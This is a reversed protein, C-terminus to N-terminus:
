PLVVGAIKHAIDGAPAQERNLMVAISLGDDPFLMLYTSIGQQGGGHFVLRHGEFQGINWGMGYHGPNGGRPQQATFMLDRTEPKVLKGANLALAFTVLDDATSIMGGGPIKNSTDALACNELQKSASLRYGRARHPIIVYVEDAGIHSMGAPRFINESLYEVFKMHSASEVAGGLLNFGYSSYSYKTGPEFLLPDNQFIQFAETFDAYHRASDLEQDGVYHRIGGLHGLLQRVTVPWQKNPFSPIYRQILADLQIKDKEVLQMVATATIPKSVSGLRIATLATAPVLNELDALGYGNSWHLGASSGIAVTLGPVTDRAMETTIVQEIQRIKETPLKGIQGFSIAPILLALAPTYLRMLGM